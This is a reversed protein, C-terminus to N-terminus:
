INLNKNNSNLCIMNLKINNLINVDNKNSYMMVIKDGDNEEGKDEEIKSDENIQNAIRIHPNGKNGRM